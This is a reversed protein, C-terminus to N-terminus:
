TSHEDTKETVHTISYMIVNVVVMIVYIKDVYQPWVTDSESAILALKSNKKKKNM